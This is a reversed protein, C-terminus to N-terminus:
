SSLRFVLIMGIRRRNFDFIMRGLLHTVDLEATSDIKAVQLELAGAAMRSCSNLLEQEKAALSTWARQLEIM